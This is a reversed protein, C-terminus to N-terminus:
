FPVDHSVKIPRIVVKTNFTKVYRNNFFVDQTFRDYDSMEQAQYIIVYDMAGTVYYFHTVNTHREISEIFSKISDKNENELAVEAILTLNRGLAEASLIAVEKKIVGIEKLAVIRRQVASSSLGVNEGIDHSSTRTNQQIIRLIHLDIKDLENQMIKKQM